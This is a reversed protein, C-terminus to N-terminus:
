GINTHIHNYRKRQLELEMSAGQMVHKRAQGGSAALVFASFKESFSPAFYM